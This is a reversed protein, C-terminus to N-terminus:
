NGVGLDFGNDSGLASLGGIYKGPPLETAKGESNVYYTKQGTGTANAKKLDLAYQRDKNAQDLADTRAQADLTQQKFYNQLSDQFQNYASSQASNVGSSIYESKKAGLQAIDSSLGLNANTTAQDIGTLANTQDTNVQNEQNLAGGSFFAGRSNISEITKTLLDAFQKKTTVKQQDALQTNYLQQNKAQQIQPDYISNALDTYQKTAKTDDFSFKPTKATKPAKTALSAGYSVSSAKKATNAAQRAKASALQSATRKGM